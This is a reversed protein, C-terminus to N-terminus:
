YRCDRIRYKRKRKKKKKKIEDIRIEDVLIVNQKVNLKLKLSVIEMAFSIVNRRSRDRPTERKRWNSKGERKRWRISNSDRPSTRDVPDNCGFKSRRRLSTEAVCPEFLPSPGRRNELGPYEIGNSITCRSAFNVNLIYSKDSRDTPVAIVPWRFFFKDM